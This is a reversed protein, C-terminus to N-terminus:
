GRGLGEGLRCATPRSAAAAVWARSWSARRGRRGRGLEVGQGVVDLLRCARQLRSRRGGRRCAAASSCRRSSRQLGEGLAEGGPEGRGALGLLRRSATLGRFAASFHSLSAASSMRLSRKAGIASWAWCMQSWSRRWLLTERSSMWRVPVAVLRWTSSSTVTSPWFAGGEADHALALQVGEGQAEEDRAGGEGLAGEAEDDDVVGDLGHVGGADVAEGADECSVALVALDDDEGVVVAEGFGDAAEVDGGGDDLDRAAFAGSTSRRRAM